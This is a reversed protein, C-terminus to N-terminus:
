SGLTVQECSLLALSSSLLVQVGIKVFGFGFGFSSGGLASSFGFASSFCFLPSSCFVSSFGAPASVFSGSFFSPSLLM